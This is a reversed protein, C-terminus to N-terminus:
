EEINLKNTIKAVANEVSSDNEISYDQLDEFTKKREDWLRNFSELLDEGQKFFAPRGSMRIREYVIGKPATIHVLICAKILRQCEPHLAAGGGLSIVSPPADIIQCLANVELSRFFDQGSNLMIQRCNYKEKLKNEYLLEIQHDLDIFQCNLKKALNKGIVSKGVHKFGFLVIHNHLPQM